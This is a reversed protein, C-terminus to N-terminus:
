PDIKGDLPEGVSMLNWQAILQMRESIVRPRLESRHAYQVLSNRALGAGRRKM